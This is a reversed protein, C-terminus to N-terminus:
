SVTRAAARRRAALALVAVAITPLIAAGVLLRTLSSAAQERPDSLSATAPDSRDYYVRVRGGIAYDATHEGSGFVASYTNAEVLYDVRIRRHENPERQAITGDTVGVHEAFQRQKIAPVGLLLLGFIFM